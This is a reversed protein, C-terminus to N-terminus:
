EADGCQAAEHIAVEAASRGAFGTVRDIDAEIGHFSLRQQSAALEHKMTQLRSQSESRQRVAEDRVNKLCEALRLRLQYIDELASARKLQVAINDLNHASVESASGISNITQALMSVMNQLEGGQRQVLNSVSRNHRELAQSIAKVALSFEEATSDPGFQKQIRAVESKFRECEGHDIDIPHETIVEVLVELAPRYADASPLDLYRKISILAM